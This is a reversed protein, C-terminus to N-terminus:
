GVGDSGEKKEREKEAHICVGITCSSQKEREAKNTWKRIERTFNREQPGKLINKYSERTPRRRQIELNNNCLVRIPNEESKKLKGKKWTM